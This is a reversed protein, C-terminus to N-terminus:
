NSPKNRGWSVLQWLRDNVIFLGTQIVALWLATEIGTWYAVAVTAIIRYFVSKAVTRPWTELDSKIGWSIKLWVRECFYFILTKSIEVYMASHWGVMIVSSIIALFRYSTSKAISRAYTEFM